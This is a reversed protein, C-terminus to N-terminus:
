SGGPAAVIVVEYPFPSGIAERWEGGALPTTAVNPVPGVTWDVTGVVTDVRLTALAQAIAAKDTSGAKALAAAAVEFLAHSHGIPQTWQADTDATYTDALQAASQGTLSSRFPHEPSWWVTTTLNDPEDLSDVLSPFALGGAVTVVPPRYEERQAQAWFAVFDRPSAVVFLIAAESTRLRQVSERLEGRQAAPLGPRYRETAVIEYGDLSATLVETWLTGTADDPVLVAVTQGAGARDWLDRSVAAADAIGWFFHYTWASREASGGAVEEWPAATSICPVGHAVCVESVPNATAATGAVLILDVAGARILDTAVAAARDPDSESDRAIIDVAYDAGGIRLPYREFHRRLHTVAFADADGYAALAGTSPTVFGIRVRREAEARDGDGFCASMALVGAMACMAALLKERWM